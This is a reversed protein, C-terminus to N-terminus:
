RGSWPAIVGLWTLGVVTLFVVGAALTASVFFFVKFESKTLFNQLYKLAAVAQLLVFVGLISFFLDLKRVVYTIRKTYYNLDM